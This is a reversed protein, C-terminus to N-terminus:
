ADGGPRVNIITRFGIHSSGMGSDGPQRAAPRYRVCGDPACLFSGGKIVRLPVEPQRQDRTPESALHSGAYRTSTWEWVNGIMDFLGYGNPPFRGVPALGAYGDEASDHGPFRGQWTNAMFRGDPLLVDGWAYTKGSLGGRAAYEWQSETPLEAGVWDAYAAADEYAVHVVPHQSKGVLSSGPGSPHRWQAGPVFRWWAAGTTRAAQDRPPVFVASGPVLKERPVEPYLDPDPAREAVTVYGTADVFAAFQANTVEHVDIWFGAVAVNRSPREEPYGRPDGM